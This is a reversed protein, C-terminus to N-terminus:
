QELRGSLERFLEQLLENNDMEAVPKQKKSEPFVSNSRLIQESQEMMQRAEREIADLHNMFQDAGIWSRLPSVMREANRIDLDSMAGGGSYIRALRYTLGISLAELADEPKTGFLKALRQRASDTMRSDSQFASRAGAYVQQAVGGMLRRMNGTLGVAEPHETVIKRLAGITDQLSRFKIVDEQLDAKVRPALELSLKGQKAPDSLGQMVDSPKVGFQKAIEALAEAPPTYGYQKLLNAQAAAVQNRYHIQEDHKGTMFALRQAAIDTSQRKVEGMATKLDQQAAVFAEFDRKDWKDQQLGTLWRQERRRAEAVRQAAARRLELIAPDAQSEGADVARIQANWYEEEKRAEREMLASVDRRDRLESFFRQLEPNSQILAQRAKPSKDYLTKGLEGFLAMHADFQEVVPQYNYRSATLAEDKQQLARLQEEHLKLRVGHEEAKTTLGQTKALLDLNKLALDPFRYSLDMIGQELGARDKKLYARGISKLSDEAGLMESIDLDGFGALNALSRYVLAKTQLPVIPDDVLKMGINVTRMREREQHARVAEDAQRQQIDLHQQYLDNHRRQEELQQRRLGLGIVTSLDLNDAM